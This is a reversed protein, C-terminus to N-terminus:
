MIAYRKRTSSYRMLCETMKVDTERRCFRKFHLGTWRIEASSAKCCGYKASKQGGYTGLGGLWLWCDPDTSDSGRPPNWLVSESSRGAVFSKERVMSDQETSDLSLEYGLWHMGCIGGFHLRKSLLLDSTTGTSFWTFVLSESRCLVCATRNQSISKQEATPGKDVTTGGEQRSKAESGLKM